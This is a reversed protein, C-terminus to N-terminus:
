HGMVLVFYDTSNNGKITVTRKTLVAAALDAGVATGKKMAFAALPTTFPVGLVADGSADTSVEAVYLRMGGGSTGNGTSTEYPLAM